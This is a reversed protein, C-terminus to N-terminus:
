WLDNVRGGGLQQEERVRESNKSGLKKFVVLQRGHM